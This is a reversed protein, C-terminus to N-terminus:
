TKSMYDGDLSPVFLLQSIIAYSCLEIRLPNTKPVYM